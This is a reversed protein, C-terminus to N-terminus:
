GTVPTPLGRYCPNFLFFGSRDSKQNSRISFARRFKMGSELQLTIKRWGKFSSIAPYTRDNTLGIFTLRRSGHPESLKRRGRRAIWKRPACGKMSCAASGCRTIGRSSRGWFSFKRRLLVGMAAVRDAIRPVLVRHWSATAWICVSRMNEWASCGRRSPPASGCTAAVVATRRCPRTSSPLMCAIVGFSILSATTALFVASSGLVGGAYRELM